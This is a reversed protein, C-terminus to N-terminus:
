VTRKPTQLDTINQNMPMGCFLDFFSPNGASVSIMISCFIMIM